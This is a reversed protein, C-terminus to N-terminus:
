ASRTTYRCDFAGIDKAMDVETIAQAMKIADDWANAIDWSMKHGTRPNIGDCGSYTIDVGEITDNGDERERTLLPLTRTSVLQPLLLFKYIFKSRM